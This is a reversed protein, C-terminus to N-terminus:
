QFVDPNEAASYAAFDINRTASHLFKSVPLLSNQEIRLDNQAEETKLAVIFKWVSPRNCSM